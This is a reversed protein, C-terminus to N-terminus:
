GFSVNKGVTFFERVILVIGENPEPPTVAEAVLPLAEGEDCQRKLFGDGYDVLKTALSNEM